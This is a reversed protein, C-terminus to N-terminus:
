RKDNIHPVTRQVSEVTTLVPKDDEFTGDYLEPQVIYSCEPASDNELIRLDKIWAKQFRIYNDAEEKSQLVVRTPTTWDRTKPSWALGVVTIEEEKTLESMPVCVFISGGLVIKAWPFLAAHTGEPYAFLVSGTRGKHTIRDGRYFSTM